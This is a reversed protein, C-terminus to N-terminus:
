LKIWNCFNFIGSTLNWEYLSYCIQLCKIKWNNSKYWLKNRKSKFIHTIDKTVPSVYERKMVVRVRQTVNSTDNTRYNRIEFNGTFKWGYRLRECLSVKRVVSFYLNECYLFNIWMYYFIRKKVISLPKKRIIKNYAIITFFQPSLLLM